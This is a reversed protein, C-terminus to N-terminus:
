FVGPGLFKVVGRAQICLSYFFLVFFILILARKRKMAEELYFGLPFVLFALYDSLYRPDYTGGGHFARHQSYLLLPLLFLSLFLVAERRYAKFFPVFGWMSLAVVPSTVLLGHFRPQLLLGKLGDAMPNLFISMPSKSYHVTYSLAYSSRLPHGFCLYNYLLLGSLPFLFSAVPLLHKKEVRGLSLLGYIWLPLSFLLNQYTVMSAIGTSLGFLILLFASTKTLPEKLNGKVKLYILCFAALTIFFGSVSHSFLATSYKWLITGLGLTLASMFASALELGMLRLLSFLLLAIGSGCLAPLLMVWSLLQEDSASKGHWAKGLLYFPVALLATGPPKDSYFDDGRRSVDIYQAWFAYTNIRFTGEEVM